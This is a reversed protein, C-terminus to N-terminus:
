SASNQATRPSPGTPGPASRSASPTTSATFSTATGAVVLQCASGDALGPASANVAQFAREATFPTAVTGDAALVEVLDGAAGSAQVLAFPQTGDTFTEAMGAPGVMLVIGGEVTAEFEYDLAADAGSAPGIAYLEGGTIRISGNSDVADGGADLVICGGSVEILCDENAGAM